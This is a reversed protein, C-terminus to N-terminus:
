NEMYEDEVAALQDFIGHNRLLEEKRDCSEQFSFWRNYRSHGIKYIQTFDRELRCDCGILEEWSVVGLTELIKRIEDIGVIGRLVYGGFFQGSVGFSFNIWCTMFGHEEIGLFTSRIRATTIQM